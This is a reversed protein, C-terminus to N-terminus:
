STARWPWWPHPQLQMQKKCCAAKLVELQVPVIQICLRSMGSEAARCMQWENTRPRNCTVAHQVRHAASAGRGSLHTASSCHGTLNHQFTNSKKYIGIPSLVGRGSARIQTHRTLGRMEISGSCIAVFLFRISFLRMSLCPRQDKDNRSMLLVHWLGTFGPFSCHSAAAYMQRSVRYDLMAALQGFATDLLLM